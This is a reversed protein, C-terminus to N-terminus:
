SISSAHQLICRLYYKVKMLTSVLECLALTSESAGDWFPDLVFLWRRYMMIKASPLRRAIMTCQADQLYYRTDQKSSLFFYTCKNMSKIVSLDTAFCESFPWSAGHVGFCIDTAQKRWSKRLVYFGRLFFVVFQCKQKSFVTCDCHCSYWLRSEKVPFNLLCIWWPITTAIIQPASTWFSCFFQFPEFRLVTCFSFYFYRQYSFFFHWTIHGIKHIHRIHFKFSM